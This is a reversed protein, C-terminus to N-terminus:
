RPDSRRLRRPPAAEMREAIAAREAAPLAAIQAVLAAQARAAQEARSGRLGELAEAFGEADFPDARLLPVLVRGAEAGALARDRRPGGGDAAAGPQRERRLEARLAARAEDPLAQWLARMELAPGQPAPARAIRLAGGAIVGVLLLNVALSVVLALRWGRGSARAPAAGGGPGKAPGSM